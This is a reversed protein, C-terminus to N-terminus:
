LKYFYYVAEGKFKGARSVIYIEFVLHNNNHSRYNGHQKFDHVFADGRWMFAM